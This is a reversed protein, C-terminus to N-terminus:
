GTVRAAMPVIQANPPCAVIDDRDILQNVGTYDLHRQSEPAFNRTKPCLLRLSRAFIRRQASRRWAVGESEGRRVPADACM